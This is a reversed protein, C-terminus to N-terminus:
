PNVAEVLDLLGTGSQGIVLVNGESDKFWAARDAGIQAINNEDTKLTPFDYSEFVVGHGKLETVDRELSRSLWGLVTQESTGATGSTYLTFFTGGECIYHAAGEEDLVSEFGLVESYWQKARSLDQVPVQAACRLDKLM